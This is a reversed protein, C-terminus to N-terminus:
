PVFQGTEARLQRQMLQLRESAQSMPPTAARNLDEVGHRKCLKSPRLAKM